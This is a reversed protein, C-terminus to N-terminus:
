RNKLAVRLCVILGGVITFVSVFMMILASISM